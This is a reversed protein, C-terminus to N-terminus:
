VDSRTCISVFRGVSITGKGHAVRSCSERSKTDPKKVRSNRMGSSKYRERKVKTRDAWKPWGVLVCLFLKIILERNRGRDKSCNKNIIVVNTYQMMMKCCWREYHGNM